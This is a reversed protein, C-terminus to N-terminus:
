PAQKNWERKSVFKPKTPFRNAFNHRMWHLHAAVIWDDLYKKILQVDAPENRGANAHWSCWPCELLEQIKWLRKWNAEESGGGATNLVIEIDKRTETMISRCSQCFADHYKTSRFHDRCAKCVQGYPYRRVFDASPGVPAEPEYWDGTQLLRYGMAEWMNRELQDRPAGALLRGRITKRLNKM